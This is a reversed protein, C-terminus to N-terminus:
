FHPYSTGYFIVLRLHRGCLHCQLCDFHYFRGDLPIFTNPHTLENCAVCTPLEQTPKKEWSNPNPQKSNTGMMVPARMQMLPISFEFQRRSSSRLSSTRRRSERFEAVAQAYHPACYIKGQFDRYSSTSLAIQCTFCKACDPHFVKDPLVIVQCSQVLRGCTHCRPQKPNSSQEFTQLNQEWGAPQVSSNCESQDNAGLAEAKNFVSTPPNEKAEKDSDEAHVAKMTINTNSGSKILWDYHPLCYPVKEHVSYRGIDLLRNCRTCRFCTRHYYRSMIHLMEPAYVKKNCFHCQRAGNLSVTRELKRLTQEERLCNENHEEKEVSRHEERIYNVTSHSSVTTPKVVSEKATFAHIDSPQRWNGGPSKSLM